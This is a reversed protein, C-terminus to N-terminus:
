TRSKRSKRSRTAYRPTEPTQEEFRPTEPTKEEREEGGGEIESEIAQNSGKGTVKADADEVLDELAKVIYIKFHDPATLEFVLADGDELNHHVAFGKWGGSLGSRSGIYVTDFDVGNEDELVMKAEGKPLYDKCFQSPLGLWFCSSVHSRVMAKVFSPNDLSSQIDQAKQFAQAQEEYSSFRGTYGRGSENSRCYRKRFSRIETEDVQDSYSVPNKARSSRRVEVVEFKKKSKESSKSNVRKHESKAVDLLSKSIKAIGLNELHKINELVRKKRAEEYTNEEEVM